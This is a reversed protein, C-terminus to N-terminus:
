PRTPPVKARGMQRAVGIVFPVLCVFFVIAGFVLPIRAEACGQAELEALMQPDGGAYALAEAVVVRGYVWGALGIILPAPVNVMGLIFSWKRAFAAHLIATVFAFLGFFTVFPMAIGGEYFFDMM